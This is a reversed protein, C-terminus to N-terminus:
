VLTSRLFLKWDGGKDVYCDGCIPQGFSTSGGCFRRMSSSKGFEREVWEDLVPFPHGYNMSAPSVVCVGSCAFLQDPTRSTGGDARVAAVYDDLLM